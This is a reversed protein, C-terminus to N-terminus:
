ILVPWSGGRFQHRFLCWSLKQRLVEASVNGEGVKEGFVPVCSVRKSCEFCQNFKVEESLEERFSCGSGECDDEM